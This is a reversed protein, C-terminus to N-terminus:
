SVGRARASGYVFWLTADIEADWGEADVLGIVRRAGITEEGMGGTRTSPVSATYGDSVYRTRWEHRRRTVTRHQVAIVHFALGTSLSPAASRPLALSGV